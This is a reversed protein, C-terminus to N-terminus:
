GCIPQTSVYLLAHAQCPFPCHTSINSPTESGTSKANGLRESGEDCKGRQQTLAKRHLAMDFELLVAGFTTGRRRSNAAQIFCPLSMVWCNREKPRRRNRYREADVYGGPIEAGPVGLVCASPGSRCEHASTRQSRRFTFSQGSATMRRALFGDVGRRMAQHLQRTM